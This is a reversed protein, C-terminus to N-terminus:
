PAYQSRISEIVSMASDSLVFADGDTRKAAEDYLKWFAFPDGVVALLRDRGLQREITTAMYAGMIRGNDPIDRHFRLALAADSRDAGIRQLMADSWALWQDSREYEVQYDGFYERNSPRPYLADLQAASMGPVDRKDVMGAVGESETTSLTWAASDDGYPRYEVDVFNRYYHHLEHGLWVDGHRISMVYLPDLLIRSYGRGDLFFIFSVSPLPNEATVEEPLYEQALSQSHLLFEVTAVSDRFAALRARAPGIRLIHPLVHAVWSEEALAAEREAVKSPMFALRFAETLPRRRREREELMAYGPTSWLSDWLAPSPEVDQSLSDYVTWFVEVGSFDPSREDSQALGLGPNLTLLSLALCWSTRAFTRVM